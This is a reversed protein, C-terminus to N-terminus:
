AVAPLLRVRPFPAFRSPVPEPSGAAVEPPKGPNAAAVIASTPRDPHAIVSPNVPGPSPDAIARLATM